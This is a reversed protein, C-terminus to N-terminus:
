LGLGEIKAPEVNDSKKSPEPTPTMNGLPTVSKTDQTDTAMQLPIPSGQQTADNKAPDVNDSPKNTADNEQPNFHSYIKSGLTMAANNFNTAIDKLIEMLEQMGDQKEQRDEQEGLDFKFREFPNDPADDFNKREPAPKASPVPTDSKNDNAM